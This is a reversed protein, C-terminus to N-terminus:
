SPCLVESLSSEDVLEVPNQCHPCRIHLGSAESQDAKQDAQEIMRLNRLEEALEPMLEPHSEIVSEDSIAKGASRALLCDKVVQRMQETRRDSETQNTIHSM